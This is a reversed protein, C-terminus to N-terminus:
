LGLAKTIHAPGGGNHANTYGLQALLMVARGGRGGSGCHAVIPAAKDAPLCVGAAAL